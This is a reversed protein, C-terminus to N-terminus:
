NGVIGGDTPFSPDSDLITNLGAKDVKVDVNAFDDHGTLIADNIITPTSDAQSSSPTVSVQFSVSRSAGTIGAGAPIRDVDWTIQQTSPVYTLNEGKPSVSGVFTVWSPITSNVQANSIGNATNSLTWVVTYTTAKGVQPPIPGTNSFPGSYYLAHASFGVDSVIKITASSSNALDSEAFDGTSQKGSVDVEINISPNGLLGGTASFLSLPSVSFAVSGSDGPNVELFENKSNKDWTVSNNSSNYFGQEASIAKPNFANGSIKAKIQLDDVKTDLNNAYHIEVRIPSKSDTTYEAQSVGNIFLDAEVFPKKILVTQEITNLVVGILSKDTSSQSGSSISFTKQDGNFVGVM